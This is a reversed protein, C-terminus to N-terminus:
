PQEGEVLLEDPPTAGPNRRVDHLPILPTPETQPIHRRILWHRQLGSILREAERIAEQSMAVTGPIDRVEGGITRAMDPLEATAKRVDALIQDVHRVAENLQNVMSQITDALEPDSILRGAPGEGQDIKQIISEVNSLIKQVPGGDARLDAAINGYEDAARKVSELLPVVAERVQNLLQELLENLDTDKTAVLGAGVPLEPGLGKTLDIFADGAIGFKKKVVARSDSRVFQIFDGKISIMGVMFGDEDVSINEVRGVTTGLIEVPSGVQLGLSGQPPFDIPIKIVPEFWGQARGALIVATVMLLIVLLVFGGVIENVYRFHFPKTKM